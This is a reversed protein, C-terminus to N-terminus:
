DDVLEGQVLDPMDVIAKSPDGNIQHVGDKKTLQVVLAGAKKMKDQNDGEPVRGYRYRLLQESIKILRDFLNLHDEQRYTRMRGNNMLEKIEGSRLKEQRDIEEELKIYTAVLREIPDFHLQQLKHSANNGGNRYVIPKDSVSVHKVPNTMVSTEM